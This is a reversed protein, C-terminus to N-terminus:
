RTVKTTAPKGITSLASGMQIFVAKALLRNRPSNSHTTASQDRANAYVAIKIPADGHDLRKSAIDRAKIGSEPDTNAPDQGVSSCCSRGLKAGFVEIQTLLKLAPVPQPRAGRNPTFRETLTVLSLPRYYKAM